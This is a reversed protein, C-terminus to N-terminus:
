FYLNYVWHNLNDAVYFRNFLAYPMKGVKDPIVSDPDRDIVTILYRKAHSYPLNDAYRTRVYDRPYLICPYGMDVTPPEQFYAKKGTPLFGTLIDHLKLRKTMEPNPDPDTM